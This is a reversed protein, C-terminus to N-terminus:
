YITVARMQQDKRRKWSPTSAKFMKPGPGRLLSSKMPSHPPPHPEAVGNDSRQGIDCQTIGTGWLSNFSFYWCNHLSFLSSHISNHSWPDSRPDPPIQFAAASETSLKLIHPLRPIGQSAKPHRPYGQTAKFDQATKQESTRVKGYKAPIKCAVLLTAVAINLCQFVPSSQIDYQSTHKM